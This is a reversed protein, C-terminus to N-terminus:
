MLSGDVHLNGRDTQIDGLANKLNMADVRLLLHDDALLEPAALDDLKELFQRRAKNPKLGAGCRV